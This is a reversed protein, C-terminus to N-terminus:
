PERLNPMFVSSSLTRLHYISLSKHLDLRLRVLDGEASRLPGSLRFRIRAENGLVQRGVCDPQISATTRTEKLVVQIRKFVPKGAM